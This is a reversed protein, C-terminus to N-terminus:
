EDDNERNITASAGRATVQQAFVPSFRKILRKSLTEAAKVNGTNAAALVSYLYPASREDVVLKDAKSLVKRLGVYGGGLGAAGAAMMAADYNGSMVFAALAGLSLGASRRGVTVTSDAKKESNKTVFARLEEFAKMRPSGKTLITEIRKEQSPDFKSIGGAKKLADHLLLSKTEQAVPYKELPELTKMVKALQDTDLQTLFKAAAAGGGDKSPIALGRGVLTAPDIAKEMVKFLLDNELAKQEAAFAGDTRILDTVAGKSWGTLRGDQVLKQMDAFVGERIEQAYPKGSADQLVDLIDGLPKSPFEKSFTARLAKLAPDKPSKALAADLAEITKTPYVTVDSAFPYIENLYKSTNSAREADVAILKQGHFSALNRGVSSPDAAPAVKRLYASEADDINKFKVLARKSFLKSVGRGVGHGLLESGAGMLGAQAVRTPDIQEGAVKQGFAELGADALGVAGVAGPVAGAPGGAIAGGAGGLVSAALEVGLRTGAGVKGAIDWEEPHKSIQVLSEKDDFVLESLREGSSDRLTEVTYGKPLTKELWSAKGEDPILELALRSDADLVKVGEPVGKKFQRMYKNRLDQRLKRADEDPEAKAIDDQTLSAQTRFKQLPTLQQESQNQLYGTRSSSLLDSVTRAPPQTPAVTSPAAPAAPTENVKAIIEEWTAM